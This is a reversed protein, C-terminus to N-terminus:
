GKILRMGLICFLRDVGKRGDGDNGDKLIWNMFWGRWFMEGLLM